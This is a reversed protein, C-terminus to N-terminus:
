NYRTLFCHVERVQLLPRYKIIDIEGLVLVHMAAALSYNLSCAFLGNTNEGSIKSVFNRREEKFKMREEAFRRGGSGELRTGLEVEFCGAYLGAFLCVLQVSAVRASM